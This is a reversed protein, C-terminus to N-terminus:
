RAAPKTTAGGGAPKPADLAKDVAEHIKDELGEGYGIFVNAIKGDRGIVVSTPIGQVLYRKGVAQTKDLPVPFKLNNQDCYEKATKKDEGQNVGFVRLGKDRLQEDEYIKQLHPLSARCPPCWTAWFDLLVVNGKENALAMDKGSTTQLAFQPAPNGILTRTDAPRKADAGLLLTLALLASAAATSTLTRTRHLPSM